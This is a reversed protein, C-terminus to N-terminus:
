RWIHEPPTPAWIASHRMYRATKRKYEEDRKKLLEKYKKPDRKALVAQNKARREKDIQRQSKGSSGKKSSSKSSKSSGSKKSSKKKDDKIDDIADAVLKNWEDGTVNEGNERREEIEKSVKELRKILKSDLEAGEPLTWKHDEMLIVNKGDKNKFGYFDTDGLLNKDNYNKEDFDKDDESYMSKESRSKDKQEPKLDSVTRGDEYGNPYYYKDDVKKVYKHDEWPGQSHMLVDYPTISPRWM